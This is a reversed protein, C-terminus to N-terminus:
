RGDAQRRVAWEISEVRATPRGRFNLRVLEDDALADIAFGLGHCHLCVPRIMKENPRLTDNQNHDVVIGAGSRVKALHCTACSVGSGAPGDGAMERQWLAHHPSGFYANTHADDHCSACAQVAAHDIDNEHPRHCSVCDVRKTAAEARMPLRAEEVTMVDPHPADRLRDVLAQPLRQAIGLEQLRAQPDRPPALLPHRRMGHRGRVFSQTEDRHCAECTEAGPTEVWHTAWDNASSDGSATPAHCAACGIGAAAHGSHRWAEVVEPRLAATPAVANTNGPALQRESHPRAAFPHTPSHKLWQEDAHRLLFDEYLARNDHYNHCGSTACTDFALNAHSPRRRVDQDGESHCAACFDDAVTVGGARTLALRHEAHCVICQRADIQERYGAMRPGRFLRRSHSDGADALEDEHCARCAENLAETATSLPAAHCTECALEIQHHGDTTAGVLLLGRDGGVLLSAVAWAVAAATVLAWCTWLGAKAVVRIM